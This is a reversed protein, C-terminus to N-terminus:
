SLRDVYGRRRDERRAIITSKGSAPAQARRYSDKHRAAGLRPTETVLQRRSERAALKRRLLSCAMILEALQLPGSGVRVFVPRGGGAFPCALSGAAADGAIALESRELMVRGAVLLWTM